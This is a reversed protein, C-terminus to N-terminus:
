AARQSLRPSAQVFRVLDEATLIPEHQLGPRYVRHAAYLLDRVTQEVAASDLGLDEELHDQSAIPSRVSQAQQLYEYTLRAIAPDFGYVALSHIFAEEDTGSRAQDRGLHRDRVALYLSFLVLGLLFISTAFPLAQEALQMLPTGPTQM